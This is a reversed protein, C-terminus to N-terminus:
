KSKLNIHEIEVKVNFKERLHSGMEEACYVSRHQGGTCGFGVLLDTFGREIYKLVSQNVLGFSHNLFVDVEPEKKLFDIVTKERGSVTKYEPFRGPNPLARCDFIFGGGNGSDDAPIGNKFSFSFVKVTLETSCPKLSSFAPTNIIVELAKMLEPLKLPIGSREKLLQLNKVAYPISQLFLPKNEYYGRFGYAGMAQLIRILVFGDFYRRFLYEDFSGSERSLSVYHDLLGQRFEEPLDAKADYLLSALDYQLGGKRGGQYDIFWAKNDRIMINRSQFDRYMFNELPVELLFDALTNFDEELKQEDFSIKALKLFYYKFYNLDWMMSQRDFAPRPYCHQFPIGRGARVQFETLHEVVSMYLKGGEASIHNDTSRLKSLTSFLSTDGLDELIYADNEPSTFLLGPVPMKVSLFHRTFELFAINERVDANYAAVVSGSSGGIRFYQRYSGSGAIRDITTADSGSWSRYLNEIKEEINM